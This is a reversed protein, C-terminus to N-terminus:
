QRAHLVYKSDILHPSSSGCNSTGLKKVSEFCYGSALTAEVVVCLQVNGIEQSFRFLLM